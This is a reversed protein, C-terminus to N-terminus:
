DDREVARVLNQMLMTILMPGLGGPVPLLSVQSEVFTDKKANGVPRDDVYYFGGDIVLSGPAFKDATFSAPEGKELIIVQYVQNEVGPEWSPVITVTGGRKMMLIALPYILDNSEGVLLCSPKAHGFSQDIVQLAAKAACSVYLPTGSVSLGLNFPHFGDVDKTPDISRLVKEEDLGEPLPLQVLIGDVESDENLGTILSLVEEMGPQPLHYIDCLAGIEESAKRKLEVYRRSEPNDGCLLISLRPKRPMTEIKTKLEARVTRSITQGDIIPM